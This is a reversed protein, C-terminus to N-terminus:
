EVLGLVGPAGDKAYKAFPPIYVALVALDRREVRVWMFGRTGM